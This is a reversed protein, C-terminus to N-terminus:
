FENPFDTCLLLKGSTDVPELETTELFARLEDWWPRHDRRHLEPSVVCVDLGSELHQRITGTSYWIRTFSDLWIGAAPFYDTEKELVIPNEFESQRVFCRMKLRSYTLMDPVSMDFVFYPPMEFAQLLRLIDEALGDSKINLALTGTAGVRRYLDLLQEFNLEPSDKGPPDHSIVIKGLHDRLDTEVGYGAALARELANVSNKGEAKTWWGRHALREMEVMPTLNWNFHRHM